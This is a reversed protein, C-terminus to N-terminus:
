FHHQIMMMTFIKFLQYPNDVHFHEFTETDLITFGRRDGVDNWFMEYPNGLYYIRGNDSRTHYHGSFVHSFKEFLKSEHGHEMICGRHAALDSSNLTGWRTTALQRKVLKYTKKKMKLILGLFLCYM